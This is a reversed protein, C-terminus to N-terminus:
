RHSRPRPTSLSSKSVQRSLSSQRVVTAPRKRLVPALDCSQSAATASPTSTATSALLERAKGSAQLPKASAHASEQLPKASPGSLPPPEAAPNSSAELEGLRQMLSSVQEERLQREAQLEDQLTAQLETLLEVQRGMSELHGGMVRGHLPATESATEAVDGRAMPRRLAETLLIRPAFKLDLAAALELCLDEGCRRLMAISKVGKEDCWRAAVALHESCEATALLEHLGEVSCMDPPSAYVGTSSAKEPTLREKAFLVDSGSHGPQKPLAVPRLVRRVMYDLHAIKYM